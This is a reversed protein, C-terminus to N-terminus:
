LMSESITSMEEQAKSGFFLITSRDEVKIEAVLQELTKKDDSQAENYATIEKSFKDYEKAETGPLIAIETSTATATESM